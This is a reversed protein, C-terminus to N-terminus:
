PNLPKPNLTPNSPQPKMPKLPDPLGITLKYVLLLINLFILFVNIGIKLRNVSNAQGELDLKPNLTQM